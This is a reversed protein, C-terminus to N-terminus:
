TTTKEKKKLKFCNKKVHGTRCCYTFYNGEAMNGNNGVHSFQKKKCQAAKHGIQGCKRCKGKYQGSFLAHEELVVNENSQSSSVNLREFCLGLEAKIEEISLPKESDGVRKEMLGLQLDYYTTLNNLIHIMFQNDSIISGMDELRIRLDELETIWVEPNEGKKLFLTRFQKELKVM